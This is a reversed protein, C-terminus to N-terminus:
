ISPADRRTEVRKSECHRGGDAKGSTASTAREACATQLSVGFLFGAATDVGSSHGMSCLRDMAARLAATRDGARSRALAAALARLAGCFSGAIACELFTASVVTTADLRSALAAGLEAVFRADSEGERRTSWLAAMLGCLFDDGSPTLGTGLGIMRAATTAASKADRARICTGLARGARALRGGLADCPVTGGRLAALQLAPGVRAQRAELWGACEAWAAALEAEPLEFKVPECRDAVVASTLDVLLRGHMATSEFVLRDGARRGRDGPRVPWADFRERSALRIGQPLDDAEPGLLTVLFLRGDVRLNMASEFMSDVRFAFDGAPVEPGITLAVPPLHGQAAPHHTTIEAAGQARGRAALRQRIGAVDGFKTLKANKKKAMLTDYRQDEVMAVIRAISSEGDVFRWPFCGITARQNLLLDIDGGLCEAHILGVNFMEIHMLQYKDPTFIAELGKGYKSTFHADCEKAQVPMWERIKTNMPHDASGCDVGIWRLKMKKAWEAFERDPGPHKIM